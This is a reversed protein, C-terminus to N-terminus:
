RILTVDGAKISVKGDATKYRARWIYVGQPALTNKHYGDWGIEVDNSEFIIEGWRTFIQLQYEVVGKQTSPYFVTNRPSGYEYRGDSPGEPNPTFANPFVVEGGQEVKLVENLTYTDECGMDSTTTLAITYLGPATYLHSPAFDTSNNGDGFDWNYAVADESRNIFV